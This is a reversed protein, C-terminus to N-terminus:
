LLLYSSYLTLNEGFSSQLLYPGPTGSVIDHLSNQIRPNAVEYFDFPDSIGRKPLDLM